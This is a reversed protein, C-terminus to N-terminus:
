IQQLCSPDLFWPVQELARPVSGVGPACAPVSLCQVGASVCMVLECECCTQPAPTAASSSRPHSGCAGLGGSLARGPSLLPGQPHLGRVGCVLSCLGSLESDSHKSTKLSLSKTETRILALGASPQPEKRSAATQPPSVCAM